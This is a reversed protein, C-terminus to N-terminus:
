LTIELKFLDLEIHRVTLMAVDTELTIELKSCVIKLTIELKSCLNPFIWKLISLVILLVIEVRFAFRFKADLMIDPWGFCFVLHTVDGIPTRHGSSSGRTSLQIAGGSRNDDDDHKSKVPIVMQAKDFAPKINAAKERRSLEASLEALMEQTFDLKGALALLLTTKGSGPPGLLLTLRGSKIIGSVNNLIKVAEKEIINIHFNLFTPLARSGVYAKAEVNLQEFRVEIKSLEIGVQRHGRDQDRGSQWEAVVVITKVVILVEGVVVLQRRERRRCRHLIRHPYRGVVIDSEEEVERRNHKLFTFSFGIM